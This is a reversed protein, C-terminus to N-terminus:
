ALADRIHAVGLEPSTLVPVALPADLADLARAMSAQALVIVDVDQALAALEKAVAADHGATDGAALREFAGECVRSVIRQGSLGREASVAEILATTPALTTTLTALVGIRTGRRVADEAMGQDIRFLPVKCFPRAADVATGLSSCTVVVANAGADIASWVQTLLRRMTDKSLAGDRITNRLLSEDAMHFRDWGPLERAVLDDLTPILGPVTHILAIRGPKHATQSSM